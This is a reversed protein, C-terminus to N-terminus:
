RRIRYYSVGAASGPLPDVVLLGDADTSLISVDRWAKLDDSQQLTISQGPDGAFLVQLGTDATPLLVVSNLAVAQFDQEFDRVLDPVDVRAPHFRYGDAHVTLSRTETPIGEFRFRGEASAMQWALGAEVKAMTPDKMGLVRGLIAYRTTEFAGIDSRKWQPRPVGRQDTSVDSADPLRDAAPSGMLVPITPTPGGHYGLTGLTGRLNRNMTMLNESGEFSSGVVDPREGTGLVISNILALSAITDVSFGEADGTLPVGQLELMVRNDVLTLHTASLRGAALRFAGGFGHGSTVQQFDAAAPGGAVINSVLTCNIFTTDATTLVAGGYGNGGNSAILGAVGAGPGGLAQNSLFSSGEVWAPSGLYLAGGLGDSGDSPGYGGLSGGLGARGEAMNGEFTSRRITTRGSGWIAGGRAAHRSYYSIGGVARNGRFVSLDIELGVGRHAIAGGLGESGLSWGQGGLCLNGAFETGVIEAMGAGSNLYIAGGGVLGSDSNRPAGWGDVRNTTFRSNTIRLDGTEIFLAGGFAAGNAGIDPAVLRGGRSENGLFAVRHAVLSGRALYIAGGRGTGLRGAMPMRGEGGGRAINESFECDLLEVQGSDVGIAGGNAEGGNSQGSEPSLSIGGVATHQSFLCNSAVLSGSAVHIAGGVGRANALTSGDEGRHQGRTLQLNRLVLRAGNEVLFIRSQNEGDLRVPHDGGDIETDHTVVMPTVVAIAGDCALTVRGGRAVAERLSNADCGTVDGEGWAGPIAGLLAIAFGALM